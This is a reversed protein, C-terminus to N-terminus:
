ADVPAGTPSAKHKGCVAKVSADMSIQNAAELSMCTHM